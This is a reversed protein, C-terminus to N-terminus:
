IVAMRKNLDASNFVHNFYPILTKWSMQSTRLCLSERYDYSRIENRKNYVEEMHKVLSNINPMFRINKNDNPFIIKEPNAEAVISGPIYSALEKQVSNDYVLTHRGAASAYLTPLGFGEGISILLNLDFVNYLSNMKEDTLPLKDGLIVVKDRVGYAEAIMPIDFEEISFGNTTYCLLVADNNITKCFYSFAQITEPWRKRFFNKAIMGMVFTDDTTKPISSLIQKRYKQIEEDKLAYFVDADFGHPIVDISNKPLFNHELLEKQWLAPVIIKDIYKLFYGWSADVPSGDFVIYSIWCVKNLIENLVYYYQPMVFGDNLTFLIDPSLALILNKIEGLGYHSRAIYVKVKGDFTQIPLSCNYNCALVTIEFDEKLNKTINELVQGFGTPSSYDGVILIKKM